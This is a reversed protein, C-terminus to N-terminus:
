LAFVRVEFYRSTDTIVQGADSRKGGPASSRRDDDGPHECRADDDDGLDYRMWWHRMWGHRMRRHCLRRHCLRDDHRLLVHDSRLLDPGCGSRLLESGSCLQEPLLQPAQGEQVQGAQLV